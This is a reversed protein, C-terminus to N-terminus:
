PWLIVRSINSNVVNIVSADADARGTTIRNGSNGNASSSGEGESSNESNAIGNGGTGSVAMVGNWVGVEDDWNNGASVQLMPGCCGPGAVNSNVVNTVEANSDARGTVIINLDNDNTSSSGDDGSINESNAIGNGGTNSVVLVHNVVVGFNWESYQGPGNALAPLAVLATLTFITSIAIIKKMNKETINGPSQGLLIVILWM